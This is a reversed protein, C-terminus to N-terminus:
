AQQQQRSLCACVYVCVRVCPCQKQILRMKNTHTRIVDNHILTHANIKYKICVYMVVAMGVCICVNNYAQVIYVLLM